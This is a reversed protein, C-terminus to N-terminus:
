GLPIRAQVWAAGSGLARVDSTAPSDLEAGSGRLLALAARNDSTTDAALATAGAAAALVKVQRLAERGIGLGRCCRALWIGTELTVPGTRRLRISGALGGAYSIAWTKQRTPGDLGTAQRHYDRFWDIREATWGEANGLAPTVEDAAADRVAVALLQELVDDEIEVLFVVVPLDAAPSM